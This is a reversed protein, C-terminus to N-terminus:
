GRGQLAKVGNTYVSGSANIISKAGSANTLVLYFGILLATGSLIKSITSM